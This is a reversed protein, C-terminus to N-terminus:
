QGKFQREHAFKQPRVFKRRSIILLIKIAKKKCYFPKIGSVECQIVKRQSSFWYFYFWFFFMFRYSIGFCWEFLNSDWRWLFECSWKTLSIWLFYDSVFASLFSRIVFDTAMNFSACQNSSSSFDSKLDNETSMFVM